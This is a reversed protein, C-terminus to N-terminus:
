QVTVFWQRTSKSPYIMSAYKFQWLSIFIIYSATFAPHVFETTRTLLFTFVFQDFIDYWGNSISDNVIIKLHKLTKPFFHFIYQLFTSVLTYLWQSRSSVSFLTLTLHISFRESKKFITKKGVYFENSRWNKPLNPLFTFGTPLGFTFVGL